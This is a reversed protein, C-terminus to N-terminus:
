KLAIKSRPIHTEKLALIRSHRRQAERLIYCELPDKPLICLALKRLKQDKEYLLETIKIRTLKPWGKPFLGLLWNIIDGPTRVINM